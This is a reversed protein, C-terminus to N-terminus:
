SFYLGISTACIYNWVLCWLQSLRNSESNNIINSAPSLNDHGMPSNEYEKWTDMHARYNESHSWFLWNLSMESRYKDQVMSLASPWLDFSFAHIHLRGTPVDKHTCPANPEFAQYLWNHRTVEHRTHACIMRGEQVKENRRDSKVLSAEGRQPPHM